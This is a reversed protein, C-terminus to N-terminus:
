FIGIALWSFGLVGFCGSILYFNSRNGSPTHGCLDSSIQRTGTLNDTEFRLYQLKIIACGKYYKLRHLALSNTRHSLLNESAEM